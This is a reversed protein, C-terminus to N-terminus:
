LMVAFTKHLVLTTHVALVALPWCGAKCVNVMMGASQCSNSVHLILTTCDQWCQWIALLRSTLPQGTHQSAAAHRGENKKASASWWAPGCSHCAEGQVM